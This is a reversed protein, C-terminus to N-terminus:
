SKGRDHQTQLLGILGPAIANEDQLAPSLVAMLDKMDAILKPADISPQRALALVSIICTMVSQSHNAAVTEGVSNGILQVLQDLEQQTM